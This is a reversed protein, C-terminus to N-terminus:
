RRAVGACSPAREGKRSRCRRSHILGAVHIRDQGRDGPRESSLDPRGRGQHRGEHAHDPGPGPRHGQDIHRDHHRRDVLPELRGLHLEVRGSGAGSHSLLEATFGPPLNPLSTVQPDGTQTITAKLSARKGELEVLQYVIKQKLELGNQDVLQEVQWRAGIGVPEEPLPASLQEMAQRGSEMSQRMQPDLVASLELNMQRTVGRHDM